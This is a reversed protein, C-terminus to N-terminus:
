AWPAASAWTHPQTYPRVRLLSLGRGAPCRMDGQGGAVPLYVIVEAQCGTFLGTSRGWGPLSCKAGM